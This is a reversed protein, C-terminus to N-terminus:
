VWCCFRRLVTWSHGRKRCFTQSTPTETSYKSISSVLEDETFTVDTAFNYMVDYREPVKDFLIWTPKGLGAMYGLEIHGSKGAPLVLVAGDCRDLHYRDFEFVHQASYDKLAERYTLGRKNAYDQWYDDAEPGAAIWSDFADYGLSRLRNGLDIVARNRLSGILYLSKVM